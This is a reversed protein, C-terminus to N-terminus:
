NGALLTGRSVPRRRHPRHPRRAGAPVPGTRLAAWVIKDGTGRLYGWRDATLAVIRLGRGRVSERCSAVPPRPDDDRVAIFLGHRLRVLRFEVDTHAHEVANSVLESAILQAPATLHGVHWTSTAESVLRRAQSPADMDPGFQACVLDDAPNPLTGLADQAPATTVGPFRRLARLGAPVCALLPVGRRRRILGVALGPIARAAPLRTLDLVVATPGQRIAGLIAQCLRVLWGRGATTTIVLAGTNVETAITLDTM